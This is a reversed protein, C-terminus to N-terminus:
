RPPGGGLQAGLTASAGVIAAGVVVRAWKPMGRATGVAAITGLLVGAAVGRLKGSEDEVADGTYSTALMPVSFTIAAGFSSGLGSLMSSYIGGPTSVEEDDEEGLYIAAMPIASTAVAIGAQEAIPADHRYRAAALAASALVVGGAIAIVQTRPSPKAKDAISMCGTALLVIVIWKM